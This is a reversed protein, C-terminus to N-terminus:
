KIQSADPVMFPLAVRKAREQLWRGMLPVRLRWVDGEEVVLERRRLSRAIEEDVPAAQTDRSAFTKLFDWEGDVKSERRLLEYLVNDGHVVVTKLAREFLRPEVRDTEEDNVMDVLTEAILQVLHPWGGAEAHIREIGNSGWFGPEFRPRSPDDNKWPKSYRLPDTLLWRTEQQTFPGVKITRANVLYSTWPLNKLETIEHSGAFAWIICRHAQISERVTALLDGPFVGEGIKRDILEYEDVAFLLRKGEAGLAANAANLAIFLSGLDEAFPTDDLPVAERIRRDVLGVLSSLSAFSRADQMSVFVTLVSPPLFPGLNRLLTSKGTRRRGYIVLGPCGTALLVQRELEGLVGYRPVFAEGDHDVPMGARFVQYAKASLSM